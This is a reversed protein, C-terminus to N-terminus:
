GDDREQTDDRKVYQEAYQELAWVIESNRSRRNTAAAQDVLALVDPPLRVSIQVPTNSDDVM